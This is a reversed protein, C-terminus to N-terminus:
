WIMYIENHSTTMALNIYWAWTGTWEFLIWCPLDSWSHLMSELPCFWDSSYFKDFSICRTIVHIVSGDSEMRSWLFSPLFNGYYYISMAIQRKSHTFFIRLHQWARGVGQAPWRRQWGPSPSRNSILSIKTRQGTRGSLPQWHLTLSRGIATGSPSPGPGHRLAAPPGDHPM